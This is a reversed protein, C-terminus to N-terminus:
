QEFFQKTIKKKFKLEYDRFIKKRKRKKCVNVNRTFSLKIIKLLKKMM